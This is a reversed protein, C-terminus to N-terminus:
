SPLGKLRAPVRSGAFGPLQRGYQWLYALYSGRWVLGGCAPSQRMRRDAEPLNYYPISPWLHHAAHLNMNMPSFFCREIRNSAYTVLRMTADGAVDDGPMSHELFVRVIDASYTFAYVPLLWLVPYAWWGIGWSLGGILAVQWLGLIGLDRVTYTPAGTPAATAPRHGLFVNGVARLLYPLGTLAFAYAIKTPKNEAIYKYRDPDGPLALRAHHRIHNTRNLRTIAGIAGVIMLDNWLDNARASRFLRRHLGDHGIIYLAYYRTGIVPVALLTLWFYPWIGVACWTAVIQIWLLVTDRVATAPSLRNLERLDEGGLLASRYPRYTQTNASPRDRDM